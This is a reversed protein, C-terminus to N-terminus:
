RYRRKRLYGIVWIGILAILGIVFGLGMNEAGGGILGVLMLGVVVGLIGWGIGIYEAIIDLLWM